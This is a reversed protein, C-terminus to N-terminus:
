ILADDWRARIADLTEDLALGTTDLRLGPARFDDQAQRLHSWQQAVHKERGADHGSITDASATLLVFRL